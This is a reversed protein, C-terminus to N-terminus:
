FTKFTGDKILREVDKKGHVNIGNARLFQYLYKATTNSYDWMTRNLSVVGNAIRAITTRYSQFTIGNEDYIVFQNRVANGRENILNTVM